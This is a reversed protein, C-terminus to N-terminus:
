DYRLAVMPDIKTARRAPLWAAFLTMGSVVTIAVAFTAPDIPSLGFLQGKIIRTAALALPLGLSLGIALLLLSERLIMWRVVPTQAGLALRIGIENTRRIVNYSMVGYLGIAALLLALLSFFGTLKSILEDHTMFNSVDQEITTVDFLSLNPDIAAVAARVDAIIRTQDSTTRVLITGAFRDQNEEPLAPPTTSGKQAQAPSDAPVFPEIQDLPVYTMRIPETNRPGSVKTDGVIGVIQWPGKDTNIDITLARGLADGRPFFHRALTQNIVAVKLTTASDSAAISRGAIVPIGATAFYDGSVRNLISMMSEKPAPTYGSFSITSSWAGYSIPRTLSLAASRVGPLASLSELLRQHLAGTQRPKYGALRADFSALLMHTREFGYDQNQLNRLNRLFLGAGVLLLLSLMVQATVLAKPWFRGSRGGSSQATRANSSLASLVGSRAAIVAPALGFLLATTLSIVLTFFLVTLDPSSSMAVTPTGQSVFAILAGTATFAVGFGLFGGTLSLLLTEILNQRIIRARSSGLALRTAIERQRTAARALLFNALNACAILLVMMVVAMLIKLSDGYESRLSSVGHTASILPVTALEIEKERATTISTGESARIGARIQQNLWQQSQALATKETAAGPSLRGFMHLFYAGSQQTLLSPGQFVVTQMAVPVWVATPELELKIGQFTRPMVGIVVFPTGNISLTKGLIDPDSSLAQQWFHYSLVVVAGGGPAADDSPTITRGLLPRAGLVSFYNGSALYAPALLAPTNSSRGSTGAPPRISVKGPFSGFSAIGQFPGPASELQRAFYWPFMGYQGIGIGGAIGGGESEGFTVLQQPDRVPLNQLLVQHILTFIATNAGIGLALSLLAILTYGPSKGLTRISMRLDQFLSDFMSEWRSTWVQHKVSNPSGMEILADRRAADPTMGNSRKHDVSAELYSELEEDLEREVRRKQFLSKLGSILSTLWNM